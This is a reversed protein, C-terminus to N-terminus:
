PHETAIRHDNSDEDGEYVKLPLMAIADALVKTAAFVATYTLATRENIQVGSRTPGLGWSLDLQSPSVPVVSSQIMAAREEAAIAFEYSTAIGFSSEANSRQATTPIPAAPETRRSRSFPWM